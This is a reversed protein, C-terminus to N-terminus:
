PRQDYELLHDASKKRTRALLYLLYAIIAAPGAVTWKFIREPHHLPPTSPLVLYIAFGIAVVAVIAIMTWLCIQVLGVLIRREPGHEPPTAQESSPASLMTSTTDLVDRVNAGAVPGIRDLQDALIDDLSFRDTVDAAAQAGSREKAQEIMSVILLAGVALVVLGGLLPGIWPGIWGFWDTVTPLIEHAAIALAVLAIMAGVAIATEIARERFSKRQLFAIKSLDFETITWPTAMIIRA